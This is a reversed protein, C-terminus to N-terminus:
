YKRIFPSNTGCVDCFDNLQDLVQGKAQCGKEINDCFSVEILVKVIVDTMRLKQVLM